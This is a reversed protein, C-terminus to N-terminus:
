QIDSCGHSRQQKKNQHYNTKRGSSNARQSISNKGSKTSVKTKKEWKQSQYM